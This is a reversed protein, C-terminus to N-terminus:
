RSRQNVQRRKVAAFKGGKQADLSSSKAAAQGAASETEAVPPTGLLPKGSPDVKTLWALIAKRKDASLDRTVPMLNPDSENLGFAIRLPVLNMCISDYSSLDLFRQMLPYLNAYQQFVPQLCGYWVPPDAQFNDWVLFSVYEWPNFNYSAGPLTELLVPRIGYVQGDIYTRPNGPAAALVNVQASGTSDTFVKGPFTLGSAPTGAPPAPGGGQLQSPDLYLRIEADNYPQGFATAKLQLTATEGPNLRFVYKDARVYVGGASEAIAITDFGGVSKLIVLPNSAISSLEQETLRRDPPLTVVGATQAYWGASEYEISGLPVYTTQGNADTVACALSLGGIDVAAGGMSSVPLSNGLYLMIKAATTDVVATCFNIQGDPAFFHGSPLGKPMFQRGATYFRPESAQAPGITGVVRGLTFTPSNFNTDYGDVNFKISLVGDSAAEKLATLFPSGSVDAWEIGNLVSQYQAGAMGDGSGLPWRDWINMFPAADYQARMLTNGAPDAIRVELGWIESVLQQEPDLDVLKAAVTLDSDAILSQMVPDSPAAYSGDPLVASTIACGIMRWNADGRPNWWGNPAAATQREQYAPIFTANNYHTPDNNVTSVAAQFKGAFHLRPPNLYSM